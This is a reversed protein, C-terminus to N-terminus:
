DRVRAVSQEKAKKLIRIYDLKNFFLPVGGVLLFLVWGREDLRERLTGVLPEEAPKGHAHYGAEVTDNPQAGSKRYIQFGVRNARRRSEYYDDWSVTPTFQGTDVSKMM